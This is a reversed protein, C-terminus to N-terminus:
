RIGNAQAPRLGPLAVQAEGTFRNVRVPVGPGMTTTTYVGGNLLGGLMLGVAIILAAKVSDAM